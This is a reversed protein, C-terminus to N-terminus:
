YELRKSIILVFYVPDARPNQTGGLSGRKLARLSFLRKLMIFCIVISIVYIIKQLVIDIICVLSYYFIFHTCNGRIIALSRVGDVSINWDKVFLIRRANRSAFDNIITDLDIIDLIANEISCMALGNLRGQLM